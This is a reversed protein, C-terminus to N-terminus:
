LQRRIWIGFIWTKKGGNEDYQKTANLYNDAIVFCVFM